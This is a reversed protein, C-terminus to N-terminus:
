CKRFVTPARKIDETQRNNSLDDADVTAQVEVQGIAEPDVREAEVFRLLLSSIGKKATDLARGIRILLTKDRAILRNNEGDKGIAAPYKEM